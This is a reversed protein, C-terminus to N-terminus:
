RRKRLYMFASQRGIKDDKTSTFEFAREIELKRIYINPVKVVILSCIAFGGTSSKAETIKKLYDFLEIQGVGGEGGGRIVITELSKAETAKQLDPIEPDLYLVTLKGPAPEMRSRIEKGLFDENFIQTEARKREDVICGKNAKLMRFRDSDTEFAKVRRVVGSNAFTITDGGISAFADVVLDIYLDRTLKGATSALIERVRSVMKLSASYATMDGLSDADYQFEPCEKNLKSLAGKVREVDAVPVFEAGAPAEELLDVDDVGTVDSFISKREIEKLGGPNLLRKRSLEQKIEVEERRRKKEEESREPKAEEGRAKASGKEEVKKKEYQVIGSVMAGPVTITRPVQKMRVGKGEGIEEGVDRPETGPVPHLSDSIDVSHSIQGMCCFRRIGFERYAQVTAEDEELDESLEAVRNKFPEYLSGLVKGCSICRTPQM